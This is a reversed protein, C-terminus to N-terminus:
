SNLKIIDANLEFLCPQRNPEDFGVEDPWKTHYDPWVIQIASFDAHEKIQIGQTFWQQIVEPKCHEVRIPVDGKDNEVIDPFKFPVTLAKTKIMEVLTAILHYGGQQSTGVVILEPHGYIEPLGVTYMFSPTTESAGVGIAQWEGNAIKQRMMVHMQAMRNLIEDENSM